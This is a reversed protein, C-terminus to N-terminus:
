LWGHVFPINLYAYPLNQDDHPRMVQLIPQYSQKSVHRLEVLLLNNVTIYGDGVRWKNDAFRRSANEKIFTEVEEAIKTALDGITIGARLNVQRKYDLHQGEPSPWLLRISPRSRPTNPFAPENSRELGRYNRRLAHVLPIYSGSLCFMISPRQIFNNQRNYTRQPVEPYQLPLSIAQVSLVILSSQM